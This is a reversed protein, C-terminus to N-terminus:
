NSASLRRAARGEGVYWDVTRRIGDAFSVPPSWDLNRRTDATDLLLSGCLQMFVSRRNVLTALTKLVGLPVPLLLTRKGMASGIERLLQPTSVDHGDSVLWSRGAAAPSDLARILLDCLNWVSVLSRGNAVSGLPLPVGRDVLRLLRLFNAKVKPGYVLPPRVIVIELRDAVQRVATEGALKSTAYVNEPRPESANTFPAAPTSGGLVGASSLYVFRRVGHEACARVLTKTGEANVRIFEDRLAASTKRLVHAKGALHVVVDVGDLAEGWDTTPGIDGVARLRKTAAPGLRRVAGTFEIRRAALATQLHQGIFGDAGTIL